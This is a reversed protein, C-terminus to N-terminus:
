DAEGQPNTLRIGLLALKVENSKSRESLLKFADELHDSLAAYEADKTRFFRGCMKLVDSLHEGQLRDIVEVLAPGELKSLLQIDKPGWTEDLAIKELVDKPDREDVYEAKLRAFHETIRPDLKEFRGAFVDDDLDSPRFRREAFFYDLLEDALAAKGIDRLFITTLSMSSITISHPDAKVAREMKDAIEDDSLMTSAHFAEWAERYAPNERPVRREAETAKWAKILDTPKAFGDVVCRIVALDFPGTSSYGTTQLRDYWAPPVAEKDEHFRFAWAYSNYKELEPMPIADDPRYRSWSAISATWVAQRLMDNSLEPVATVQRIVREIKRIIRINNLELKTVAALLDDYYPEEASVAIQVSESPSPAFRVHSDFLKEFQAQFQDRGEGAIKEDNLLVVIKCKREEKLSSALGLIDKIELKKGTRELDDFCILREKIAAFSLEEILSALATGKAGFLSGISSIHSKSSELVTSIQEGMSREDPIHNVNGINVTNRFIEKKVDSLDNLGFLSVYSYSSFGIKSEKAAEGLYKKRAFTKGVGWDGHICLVEPDSSALFRTIEHKLIDSIITRVM